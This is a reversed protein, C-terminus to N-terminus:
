QAGAQAGAKAKQALRMEATLARLRAGIGQADANARQVAALLSGASGAPAAAAAAAAPAAASSALPISQSAAAAAAARGAPARAKLSM